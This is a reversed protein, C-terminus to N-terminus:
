GGGSFIIPSVARAGNGRENGKCISPQLPTAGGSHEFEACRPALGADAADLLTVGTTDM